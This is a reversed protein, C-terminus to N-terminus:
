YQLNPFRGSFKIKAFLMLIIQFFPDKLFVSFRCYLYVVSETKNLRNMLVISLAM